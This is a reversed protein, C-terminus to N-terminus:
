RPVTQLHLHSSLSPSLLMKQRDAREQIHRKLRGLIDAFRREEYEKEGSCSEIVGRVNSM